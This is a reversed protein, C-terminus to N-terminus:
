SFRVWYMFIFLLLFVYDKHLSYEYIFILFTTFNVVDFVFSMFM